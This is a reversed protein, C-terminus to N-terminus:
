NVVVRKTYSGEPLVVVINYIGRAVAFIPLNYVGGFANVSNVQKIKQGGGNILEITALNSTGRVFVNIFNSAPNPTITIEIGTATSIIKTGHIPSTVFSSDNNIQRLRYYYYTNAQVFNDIYSYNSTTATTGNGNVYSVQTFNVSDTSRDIAFGNNNNESLTSFNLLISKPNAKITFDIKPATLTTNAPVLMFQSFGTFSGTYTIYGAAANEVVIPTIISASISDITGSTLNVGDKIKLIKLNLKNAGWVALEDETFYLTAQYIATSSPTAPSIQFVKQTRKYSGGLTSLPIAQNGAQIIQTTIGAITVPTNNILAIMKNNSISRFNNTVSGARVDFGYSSSVVTEVNYPNGNILLDDILLPPNNGTNNDNVWRFGITFATDMLNAPLKISGTNKALSDGQLTLPAGTSDPLYYFSRNNYSYMVRGFDYVGQADAEGNCKYTFSLNGDAYGSSRIKPTVVVADSTSDAAYELPKTVVNDTIYLAQGTIGAGGNAGVRWKNAGATAQFSGTLWNLPFNGGATGFNENLLAVPSNGVSINDDDRINITLQQATAGATVGAGSISYNLIINRNGDVEANDFIRLKVNKFNDGAGFTLTPTLLQYHFNNIASGAATVTVTAIGTAKDEVNLLLNLDKYRPYAGTSGTESINIIGTCEEFAIKNSATVAAGGVSSTALTIRRPSNVMVTQMRTVQDNTFTNLVIDDSYDMYNEFMEDPTGCSNSKPHSPVGSNSTLHIPTDTCFDNGCKADGWIHRLGLFHGTEHSLTKGLGYSVGCAYPAFASGISGTQVVVGATNDTEGAFLGTLTSSTPFTSYGLLDSAGSTISPVVWINYYNNPNWITNPKVTEDIYTSTYGNATYDNWGESTINIRDIGPEALLVGQPNTQALVFQIGTNAAIAYPSNSQNAYDKNLQLIQQKIAASSLNPITGVAEGKNLIHFVIPIIYNAALARQSQRFQIKPQLWNEFQADTEAGPHAKRYNNLVEVTYCKVITRSSKQNELQWKQACVNKSVALFCLFTFFSVLKKITM